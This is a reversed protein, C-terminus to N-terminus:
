EVETGGEVGDIVGDEEGAKLGGEADSASGEEPEFRVEGVAVLENADIFGVGICGWNRLTDGLTQHETGEEEDEVHKGKTM